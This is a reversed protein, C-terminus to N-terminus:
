VVVRYVLAAICAVCVALVPVLYEPDYRLTLPEGRMGSRVTVVLFALLIVLGTRAMVDLLSNM